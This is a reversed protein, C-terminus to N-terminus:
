DHGFNEVAPVDDDVTIAVVRDKHFARWENAELDWVPLVNQNERSESLLRSNERKPLYEERLTCRMKRLTGDLKVFSIVCVHNELKEVLMNM